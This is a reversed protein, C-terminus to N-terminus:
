YMTQRATFTVPLNVVVFFNLPLFCVHHKISTSLLVTTTKRFSFVTKSRVCVDDKRKWFVLKGRCRPGTVCRMREPLKSNTWAEEQLAATMLNHNNRQKSARRRSSVCGSAKECRRFSEMPGHLTMNYREQQKWYALSCSCSLSEVELNTQQM